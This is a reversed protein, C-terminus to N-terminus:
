LIVNFNAKAQQRTIRDGLKPKKINTFKVNQFFIFFLNAKATFNHQKVETARFCFYQRKAYYSPGAIVTSFCYSRMRWGDSNPYHNEIM